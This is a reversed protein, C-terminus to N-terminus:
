AVKPTGSALPNKFGSYAWGGLPAAAIGSLGGLMANSQAAQTAYNSQVLGTYDVPAVGPAAVTPSPTAGFTPNTTGSAGLLMTLEKLPQDRAALIESVSQGRGTLVLQNYADNRGEDFQRVMTAYAPTGPRIGRNILETELAARREAFMPDLRASGLQMLRSEVAENSLDVPQALADAVNDIQEGAVWGLYGQNQTQQDYLRQQEPSLSTVMQYGSPSNPDTVYSQSGYPTTQGMMGLRQQERAAESALRAQTEATQTNLQLQAQAVTEPDPAKPQSFIGTM